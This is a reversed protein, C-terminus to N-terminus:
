SECHTGDDDGCDSTLDIGRQDYTGDKIAKVDAAAKALLNLWGRQMSAAQEQTAPRQPYEPKSWVPGYGRHFWDARQLEDPQDEYEIASYEWCEGWETVARRRAAPEHDCRTDM